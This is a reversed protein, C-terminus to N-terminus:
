SGRYDSATNRAGRANFFALMLANTAEPQEYGVWHSADPVVDCRVGPAISELYAARAATDPRPLPDLAGLICLVPCRARRLSPSLSDTYGVRRVRYRSLSHNRRQMAVTLADIREPSHVMLLELNRRHVADEEASSAGPPVRLLPPRESTGPPFGGPGLLCAGTVREPLRAALWAAVLAGFSFGAVGFLEGPPILGADLAALLRAGYADLDDDDGADRSEGMGPLDPVVIHCHAALAAMNRVWHTWSGTGGHLLLLTPGHGASRVVLGDVTTTRVALGPLLSGPDIAPLASM